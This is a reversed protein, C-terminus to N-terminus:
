TFMATVPVMPPTDYANSQVGLSHHQPLLPANENKPSTVVTLTVPTPMKFMWVVHALTGLQRCHSADPMATTSPKAANIHQTSLQQTPTVTYQTTRRRRRRCAVYEVIQIASFQVRFSFKNLWGLWGTFHGWTDNKSNPDTYVRIM